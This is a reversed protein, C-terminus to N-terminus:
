SNEVNDIDEQELKELKEEINAGTLFTNDKMNEDKPQHFNNEIMMAPQDMQDSVETQIRGIAVKLLKNKRKSDLAQKHFFEKEEIETKHKDKWHKVDKQLKLLKKENDISDQRLKDITLELDAIRREKFNKDENKDQLTTILMRM